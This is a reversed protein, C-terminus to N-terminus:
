SLVTTVVDLIQNSSIPKTLFADAGEEKALVRDLDQGSATLMIVPLSHFRLDARIHRLLEMGDMGPMAVDSIVLNIIHDDLCKLAEIGNFATLVEYGNRQLTFSLVRQNVTSDEVILITQM